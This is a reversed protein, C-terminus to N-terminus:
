MYPNGKKEHNLLWHKRQLGGAYGGLKGDSSIVRHCPIIISLANAGNAQAVARCATPHGIAQALQAYSCTTGFPIQSLADWVKKQFETGVCSLPTNFQKLTGAFYNRLEQQLLDLIVSNGDTILAGTYRKLREIKQHLQANKQFDLICLGKEDAIAQVQGLPTNIVTSILASRVQQHVVSKRPVRQVSRIISSM